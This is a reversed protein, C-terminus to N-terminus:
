FAAYVALQTIIHSSNISSIRSVVQQLRFGILFPINEIDVPAPNWGDVTHVVKYLFGAVDRSSWAEPPLLSINETTFENNTKLSGNGAKPERIKNIPDPISSDIFFHVLESM